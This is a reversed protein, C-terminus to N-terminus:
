PSGHGESDSLGGPPSTFDALLQHTLDRGPATGLAFALSLAGGFVVAIVLVAARGLWSSTRPGHVGARAGAGLGEVELVLLREQANTLEGRLRAVEQESGRLKARMAMVDAAAQERITNLEAELSSVEESREGQEQQSEIFERVLESLEAVQEELKQSRAVFQDREQELRAQEEYLRDIEQQTVNPGVKSQAAMIARQAYLAQELEAKDAIMRQWEIERTQITQRAEQLAFELRRRESEADALLGELEGLKADAGAQRPEEPHRAVEETLKVLQGKVREIEGAADQVQEILEQGKRDNKGLASQLDSFANRVASLEQKLEENEKRASELMMRLRGEVESSDESVRRVEPEARPIRTISATPQKGVEEQTVVGPKPVAAKQVSQEALAVSGMGGKLVYARFQHRILLFAAAESVRGTECILIYPRERNLSGLDVRLRFFPINIAGPLHGEEFLDPTRVDLWCAGDAVMRQGEALDVIAIVPEKVLKLFHEKSLRLLVGDTTMTVTVNRPQDSILADEGFTDCTRLEALKIERALRSPKRSLVCRGKKIIYYYDGPEDQHIIQEGAKVPVEELNSLILQLNAPSLRQFIPSNLLTTVWDGSSEEPLDSVEYTAVTGSKGLNPQNVYGSDVRIYRVRDKAIASVKRPIQHALAFKAADTGGSVTEMEMGGAQLSVTGSLVYVFENRDDGQKFLVTGRPAEEIKVEAALKQFRDASLINLPILRRLEQADQVTAALSM